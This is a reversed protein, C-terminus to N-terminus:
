ALPASLCDSLLCYVYCMFLNCLMNPPRPPCPAPNFLTDSSGGQPPSTQALAQGTTESDCRLLSRLSLSTSCTGATVCRSSSAPSRGVRGCELAECTRGQPDQCWHQSLSTTLGTQSPLSHLWPVLAGRPAASGPSSGWKGFHLSRDQSCGSPLFGCSGWPPPRLCGPPLQTPCM